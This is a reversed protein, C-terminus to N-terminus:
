CNTYVQNGPWADYRPPQSLQFLDAYPLSHGRIATRVTGPLKSGLGAGNERADQKSVVRPEPDVSVSGLELTVPGLLSYGLPSLTAFVLERSAYGWNLLSIRAM